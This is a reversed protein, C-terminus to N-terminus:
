KLFHFKVILSYFCFLFFEGKIINGVLPNVTEEYVAEQGVEPPFVYNFTFPKKGVVIMPANSPFHVCVLNGDDEEKQVLPRCRVAVKVPIVTM